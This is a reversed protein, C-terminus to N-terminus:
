LSSRVRHLSFNAIPISDIHGLRKKWCRYSDDTESELSWQAGRKTQLMTFIEWFIPFPIEFPRIRRITFWETTAIM